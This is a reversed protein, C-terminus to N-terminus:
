TPARRQLMEALNSPLNPKGSSHVESRIRELLHAEWESILTNELDQEEADMFAAFASPLQGMTTYNPSATDYLFAALASVKSSDASHTVAIPCLSEAHRLIVVKDRLLAASSLSLATDTLFAAYVHPCEKHLQINEACRIWKRCWAVIHTQAAPGTPHAFRAAIYRYFLIFAECTLLYASHHQRGFLELVDQMLNKMEEFFGKGIIGHAAVAVIREAQRCLRTEKELPMDSDRWREGCRLCLWPESPALRRQLALQNAHEPSGGDGEQHQGCCQRRYRWGDEGRCLPCPFARLSDIGTYMIGRQEEQEVVIKNRSHHFLALSGSCRDCACTYGVSARISEQRMHVPLKLLQHATDALPGVWFAGMTLPEHPAISRLAILRGTEGDWTCNPACSYRVSSALDFLGWEDTQLRRRFRMATFFLNVLWRPPLDDSLRTLYTTASVIVEADVYQVGLFEELLLTVADVADETLGTMGIESDRKLLFADRLAQLGNDHTSTQRLSLAPPFGNGGWSLLPVSDCAIVEGCSIDKSSVPTNGHVMVVKPYKRTWVNMREEQLLRVCAAVDERIERSTLRAIGRRLAWLARDHDCLFLSLLKALLLAFVTVEVAEVAKTLVAEAGTAVKKILEMTDENVVCTSVGDFSSVGELFYLLDESLLPASDTIVFRKLTEEFQESFQQQRKTIWQTGIQQSVSASCFSRHGFWGAKMCAISCYLLENCRPCPVFSRLKSEECAEDDSVFSCTLCRM